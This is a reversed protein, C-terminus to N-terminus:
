FRDEITEFSQTILNFVDDTDETKNLKIEVDGTGWHGIDVMDRSLNRPDQL